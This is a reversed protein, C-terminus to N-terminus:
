RKILFSKPLWFPKKNAEAVWVTGEDDRINMITVKLKGKGQTCVSLAEDFTRAGSKERLSDLLLKSDGEYEPEGTDPSINPPKGTFQYTM